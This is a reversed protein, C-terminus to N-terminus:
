RIGIVAYADDVLPSIFYQSESNNQCGMLFLTSLVLFPLYTPLYFIGSLKKNNM